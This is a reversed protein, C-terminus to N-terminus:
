THSVRRVLANRLRGPATIQVERSWYAVDDMPGVGRYVLELGACPRDVRLAESESRSLLTSAFWVTEWAAKVGNLQEALDFVPDSAEIRPMETPQGRVPILDEAMVYPVTDASWVKRTRVVATGDPLDDFRADDAGVSFFEVDIVEVAPVYGAAAIATSHDRQQDVRSGIDDLRLNISTRAGQSRYVYGREELRILAERVSNRSAGTLEALRPESPMAESDNASTRWMRLLSDVLDEGALPDNKAM